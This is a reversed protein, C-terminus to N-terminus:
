MKQTELIEMVSNPEEVRVWGLGGAEFRGLRSSLMGPRCGLPSLVARVGHFVAIGAWVPGKSACHAASFAVGVDLSTSVSLM